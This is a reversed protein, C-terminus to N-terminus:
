SKLAELVLSAAEKEAQRRNSATAEIPAELLEVSCSVTIVQQHSAGETAIVTYIPLNKKHAQLLEQLETKPDKLSGDVSLILLRTAFWQAVVQQCQQMNSDLFIAGILAEFANALISERRHGGSKLEGGGLFLYDGLSFERAIEALTQGKVLSSRLRSLVGEKVDPFQQYLKESITVGLLSDGLFELRENNITSFSRHSLALKLLEIDNFQYGIHRQLKALDPQAIM